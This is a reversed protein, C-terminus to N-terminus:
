RALNWLFNFIDTWKSVKHDYKSMQGSRLLTLFSKESKIEVVIWKVSQYFELFFEQVYKEKDNTIELM